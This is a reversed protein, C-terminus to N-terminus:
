NCEDEQLEPFDEKSITINIMEDNYYTPNRLRVRHSRWRMNEEEDQTSTDVRAIENDNGQEESDEDETVGTIRTEDDDPVIM